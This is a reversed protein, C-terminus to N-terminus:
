RVLQRLQLLYLSPLLCPLYEELKCPTPLLPKPLYSQTLCQQTQRSQELM